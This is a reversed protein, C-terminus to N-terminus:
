ARSVANLLKLLVTNASIKFCSAVDGLNETILNIELFDWIELHNKHKVKLVSLSHIVHTIIDVMSVHTM